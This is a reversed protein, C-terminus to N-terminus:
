IKIDQVINVQIIYITLEMILFLIIAIQKIIYNMKLSSSHTIFDTYNGGVKAISKENSDLTSSM